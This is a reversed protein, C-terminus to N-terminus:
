RRPIVGFVRGLYLIEDHFGLVLIYGYWLLFFSALRILIPTIQNGEKVPPLLAFNAHIFRHLLKPRVLAWISLGNMLFCIAIQLLFFFIGRRM